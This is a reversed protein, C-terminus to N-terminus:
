AFQKVSEQYTKKLENFKKLSIMKEKIEMENRRFAKTLQEAKQERIHPTHKFHDYIHELTKIKEKKITQLEANFKRFLNEYIYGWMDNTILIRKRKCYAIFDKMTIYAVWTPKGRKRKIAMLKSYINDLEKISEYDEMLKRYEKDVRVLRMGAVENIDTSRIKNGEDDYAIYTMIFDEEATKKKGRTGQFHENWDIPEDFMGHDLIIGANDLIIARKNGSNLIAELREERTKCHQIISNDVRLVRGIMQIILGLSKSPRALQVFDIDPCDYGETYIGVNILVTLKNNKFDKDFSQRVDDPTDDVIVAAKVGWRNFEESLSYAHEKDVAFIIGKKGYAKLCYTEFVPALQMAKSASTRKYDGASIEISEMNPAPMAYYDYDLLWGNSVMEKISPGTILKSFMPFGHGSLRYPTATVAIIYANPFRKLIKGYSNDEQCHHGEDVIVLQANPMKKRRILTQVSAVQVYALPDPDVKSKIIGPAMNQKILHAATQKILETRHALVLAYKGRKIFENIISVFIVTKGGGTPLHTMICRHDAWASFIENFQKEQYDRKQM